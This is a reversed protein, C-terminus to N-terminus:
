TQSQAKTRRRTTAPEERTSRHVSSCSWNEACRMEIFGNNKAACNANLLRRVAVLRRQWNRGGSGTAADDQRRLVFQECFCEDRRAETQQRDDTRKGIRAWANTKRALEHKKAMSSKGAARNAKRRDDDAERVRREVLGIIRKRDADVIRMWETQIVRKRCM